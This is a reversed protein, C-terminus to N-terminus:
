KILSKLLSYVRQYDAPSESPWKGSDPGCTWGLREGRGIKSLNGLLWQFVAKQKGPALPDFSYPINYRQLLLLVKDLINPQAYYVTELIIDDVCQSVTVYNTTLNEIPFLRDTDDADSYRYTSVANNSLLEQIYFIDNQCTHSFTQFLVTDLASLSIFQTGSRALSDKLLKISDDCLLKRHFLLDLLSLSPDRHRTIWHFAELPVQMGLQFLITKASYEDNSILAKQLHKRLTAVTSTYLDSSLTSM